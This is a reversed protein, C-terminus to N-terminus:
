IQEAAAVQLAMEAKNSVRLKAYVAQIHNRVTAPSIGLVRAIEKHTDGRAFLTSVARERESLRDVATLTRAKLFLLDGIIRVGLAINKGRWGREGCTWIASTMSAPLVPGRWQAWEARVVAEFGADANYLVGNRDVIALSARLRAGRVFIRDLNVLRNITLAEILHPMVLEWVAREDRSFQDDPQRRYISIWQAVPLNKDFHSHVLANAVGFRATVNRIDSKDRGRFLTPLHVNLTRDSNAAAVYVVTDQHNVEQWREVLELPQEHLHVSHVALGAASVTGTGWLGSDFRFAPRFLRLAAEQFQDAPLERSAQYLELLVQGFSEFSGLTPIAM